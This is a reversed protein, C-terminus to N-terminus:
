ANMRPKARIKLLYRYIKCIIDGSQGFRGKMNELFKTLSVPLKEQMGEGSEFNKTM